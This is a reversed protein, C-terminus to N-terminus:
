RVVVAKATMKIDSNEIDVSQLAMNMARAKLIKRDHPGPKIGRCSEFEEVLAIFNAEINLNSM